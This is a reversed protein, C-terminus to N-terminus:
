GVVIRIVGYRSLGITSHLLPTPLRILIPIAPPMREIECSIREIQSFSDTGRLQADIPRSPHVRFMRVYPDQGDFFHYM